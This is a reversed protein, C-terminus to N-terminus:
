MEHVVTKRNANVDTSLSQIFQQKLPRIQFFTSKQTEIWSKLYQCKPLWDLVDTNSSNPVRVFLIKLFSGGTSDSGAPGKCKLYIYKCSGVVM